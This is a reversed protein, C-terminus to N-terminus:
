SNCSFSPRINPDPVLSVSLGLQHANHHIAALLVRSCYSTLLLDLAVQAAKAFSFIFRPTPVGAELILQIGQYARAVSALSYALFSLMIWRKIGTESRLRTEKLGFDYKASQFFAEIPWRRAHRRRLTKACGKQTCLVYFRKITNNRPLDIYAVFLAKGPYSELEVQEGQRCDRLRRGDKLILNDRAGITLNTYGLRAAKKIFDASYFGSDVLLYCTWGAFSKAPFDRLLELALEIPTHSKKPDYIRFALPLSLRAISVHLVVLHIGHVGNFVRLFPLEKGTKEISTLDIRVWVYGKRGVKHEEFSKLRALQWQQICRWWATEDFKAQNFWRSATSKSKEVLNGLICRLNVSLFLALINEFTKVQHEEKIQGKLEEILISSHQLQTQPKNVVVM